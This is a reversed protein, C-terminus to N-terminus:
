QGSRVLRVYNSNDKLNWSDSGNGFNVIWATATNFAAPSSSWFWSSPANPFVTLNISPSYCQREVLSSLEKNNPLRWDNYGAFGDSSNVTQAQKLAAQWTIIQASGSSCDTGAQGESCKKWMLGTQKDSVTGNAHDIFRSTPTTAQISSTQCTQAFVTMPWLLLLYIIKFSFPM